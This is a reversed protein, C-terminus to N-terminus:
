ITPIIIVSLYTFPTLRKRYAVNFERFLTEIQREVLSNDFIHLCARTNDQTSKSVLVITLPGIRNHYKISEKMLLKKIERRCCWQFQCHFELFTHVNPNRNLHPWPCFTSVYLQDFKCGREQVQTCPTIYTQMQTCYIIPEFTLQFQTEHFNNPHIDNWRRFGNLLNNIRSIAEFPKTNAKIIIRRSFGPQTLAIVRVRTKLLSDKFFQVGDITIAKDLEAIFEWKFNFTLNWNATSPTSSYGTETRVGVNYARRLREKLSHQCQREVTIWGINVPNLM